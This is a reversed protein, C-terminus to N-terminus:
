LSSPASLVVRRVGRLLVTVNFNIVLALALETARLYSLAQAIHIPALQEVTKLEVILRQAVLFYPWVDGVLRDKYVVAIAPQRVFRIRRLTLELDLAQDYVSELFGPGLGRHVEIAAQLVASAVEDTEGGAGQLERADKADKADQRKV